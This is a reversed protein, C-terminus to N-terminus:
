IEKNKINQGVIEHNQKEFRSLYLIRLFLIYSIVQKKSAYLLKEHVM